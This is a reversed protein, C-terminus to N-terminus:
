FILLCDPQLLRCNSTNEKTKQMILAPCVEYLVCPSEFNLYHILQSIFFEQSIRICTHEFTNHSINSHKVFSEKM